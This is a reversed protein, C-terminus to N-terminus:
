ASIARGSGRGGSGSLTRIQLDPHLGDPQSRGGLPRRRHHWARGMRQRPRPTAPDRRLGPLTRPLVRRRAPVAAAGSQAAPGILNFITRVGTRRANKRVGVVAKFAPHYMPAFMFGVGAQEICNRFDDPGMDIRIGLAELVDAGGSKSTIGRNGHKVVVAGAAAAVFM